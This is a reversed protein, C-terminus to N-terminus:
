CPGTLPLLEAAEANVKIGWESQFFFTLDDGPGITQYFNDFEERASTPHFSINCLCSDESFPYEPDREKVLFFHVGNFVLMLGPLNENKAWKETSRLWVLELQKLELDYHVSKFDFNNHLDLNHAQWELSIYDGGIAFNKLYM